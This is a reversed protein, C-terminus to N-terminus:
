VGRYIDEFPKNLIIDTRELKSSKLFKEGAHAIINDAKTTRLLWRVWKPLPLKDLKGTRVAYLVQETKFRWEAMRADTLYEKPRREIEKRIKLATRILSILAIISQM